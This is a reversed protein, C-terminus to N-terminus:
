APMPTRIHVMSAVMEAVHTLPVTGTNVVLDYHVPNSVDANFTAKVYRERAVDQRANFERAATVEWQNLRAMTQARQDKSAVLRLHVGHRLTSTAFNAGRGVFIANGAQALQRIMENTKRVLEWISPHLGVLEGVSANIESVTDEPLYQAFRRELHHQDLMSQVINADYVTWLSGDPQERNLRDALMSALTSGGAGSERSITV